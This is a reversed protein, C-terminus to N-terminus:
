KTEMEAAYGKQILSLLSWPPNHADYIELLGKATEKNAWDAQLECATSIWGQVHVGHATLNAVTAQLVMPSDTGSADIVLRVDYGEAAMSMAPLGICFDATIGACIVKRRGTAEIASRIREDQWSNIKTRYVPEVDPFCAAIEPLLPGMPGRPGQAACSIVTPVKHLALVKALAISNNRLALLSIDGTNFYLGPQHDVLLACANDATIMEFPDAM